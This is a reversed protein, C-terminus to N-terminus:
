PSYRVCPTLESLLVSLFLSLSLSLLSSVAGFLGGADAFGAYVRLGRVRARKRVVGNAGAVVFGSEGEEGSGGAVVGWEEDASRISVEEVSVGVAAGLGPAPSLEPPPTADEYRIHVRSLVVADIAGHNSNQTVVSRLPTLCAPVSSACLRACACAVLCVCASVFRCVLECQVNDVVKKGLAEMFSQQAEKQKELKQPSLWAWGRADDKVLSGNTATATAANRGADDGGKGADDDAGGNSDGDGPVGDGKSGGRRPRCVLYVGDLKIVVPSSSLSSWPISMTLESLSGSVVEVPLEFQALADTRLKLDRLKVEGSWVSVSLSDADLGEVFRGLHKSLVDAVLSEFM